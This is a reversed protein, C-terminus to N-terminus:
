FRMLFHLMLCVTVYWFQELEALLRQLKIEVINLPFDDAWDISSLYLCVLGLGRKGRRIYQLRGVSNRCDDGFMADFCKNFTEYATSTVIARLWM